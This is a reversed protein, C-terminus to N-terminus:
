PGGKKNAVKKDDQERRWVREGLFKAVILSELALADKSKQIVRVISQALEKEQKEKQQHQDEKSLNPDTEFNVESRDMQAAIFNAMRQCPAESQSLSILGEKFNELRYVLSSSLDRADKGLARGITKFDELTSEFGEWKSAYVRSGGSRKDLEIAVANRGMKRKAEDDLLQHARQLATTLPKKHHCIHIGASISLRDGEGLHVSLKQFESNQVNYPISGDLIEYNREQEQYENKYGVFGACYLKAIEEAAALVSSVPMVACVDDGGAYILHGRHHKIIAPVGYISFDGLSESISAHLAPALRRQSCLQLTEWYERFNKDFGPSELREVLDPHLVNMWASAVTEGNVLKGMHDGDMLLIAYYNDADTYPRNKEKLDAFLKYSKKELLREENVKEEQTGGERQHIYQALKKRQEKDIINRTEAFDFMDSLAVDTSSAFSTEKTLIYKLQMLPSLSDPQNEECVQYAIRKTLCISCLRETDKFDISNYRIQWNERLQSWFKDKGFSPNENPRSPPNEGPQVTVIEFEGCQQCKIGPEPDREDLKSGKISALGSQALKHSLGYLASFGEDYSRYHDKSFQVNKKMFELDKQTGAKGLLEEILDAENKSLLPTAAWQHEWFSKNQREFLKQLYCCEQQTIHKLNLFKLTEQTLNKWADNISDRITEACDQEKGKPVLCVFKNPFSAISKNPYENRSLREWQGFKHSCYDEVMPQDILSPYLVHDAGLYEMVARIGCFALWSLIVSGTWYDRLKRAKSIFGQVPTLSYVLLTVKNVGSVRMCSHLASVLGNHQWISHDPIRTDAPLRTWLPGLSSLNQKTLERRLLLHVYMFRVYAFSEPDGKFQDSLSGEDYESGISNASNLFRIVEQNLQAAADPTINQLKGPLQISLSGNKGTPHTLRATKTFDIAGSKFPDHHFGPVQARDMGSAIQDAVKYVDKDPFSLGLAKLIENAVQEHGQIRFSKTFPDHLYVSLKEDWYAATPKTLPM